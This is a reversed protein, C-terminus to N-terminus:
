LVTAVAYVPDCCFDFDIDFVHNQWDVVWWTVSFRFFNVMLLLYQIFVNSRINIRKWPWVSCKGHMGHVYLRKPINVFVALLQMKCFNCVFIFLLCNCQLLLMIFLFYFIVSVTQMLPVTAHSTKESMADLLDLISLFSKKVNHWFKSLYPLIYSM